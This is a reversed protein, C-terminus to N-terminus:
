KLLNYRLMANEILKTKSGDRIILNITTGEIPCGKTYVIDQHMDSQIKGGLFISTGYAIHLGEAKEDELINGTVVAKPNCGIAFEAINRRTDNEAFFDRMEEAKKGNGVVEIIRNNRIFYKVLEGNYIVPSVGKTKSEGFEGIEEPTGEYPAKFAEGSPLNIFQGTKTCDGAGSYATRNRLDIYLTDGTSFTIEAGTAKNFIQELAAAYKQVEAYNARLATEEMRKEVGPMSACRTITNKDTCIPRLSSTISYEPMAIVLNFRRADDLIEESLPANHVGTSEYEMLDVLFGTEAGIEKFINFWEQAMERREKWMETDKIDDHPTDVLFLVKEGSKPAFVDQFLKIKEERNM